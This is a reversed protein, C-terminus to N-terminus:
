PKEGELVRRIDEALQAFRHLFASSVRNELYDQASYSIGDLCEQYCDLLANRGNNTRLRQGYKKEGMDIRSEHDKAVGPMGWDTLVEVVFRGVDRETDPATPMQQVLTPDNSSM